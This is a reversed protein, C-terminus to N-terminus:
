PNEGIFSLASLYNLGFLDMASPQGEDWSSLLASMDQADPFDVYSMMDVGTVDQRTESFAVSSSQIPDFHLSDDRRNYQGVCSRRAEVLGRAVRAFSSCIKYLRESASSAHKAHHLTQLVQDLLNVDDINTAAIAHLFVM